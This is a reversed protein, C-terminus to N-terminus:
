RAAVGASQAPAHFSAGGRSSDGLFISPGRGGRDRSSAAACPLDQTEYYGPSEGGGGSEGHMRLDVALVNWANRVLFAARSLMHSRNGAGGHALIVTGYAKKTQASAPLWWAVLPIGDTAAFAVRQAQLGYDQPAAVMVRLEQHNGVVPNTALWGLAIWLLAALGLILLIRTNRM